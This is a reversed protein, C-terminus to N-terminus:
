KLRKVTIEHHMGDVRMKYVSGSKYVLVKPRYAYHYEYDFSVQQWVQGNELKFVTDGDWGEFDGDIGTEIVAPESVRNPIEPVKDKDLVARAVRLTYRNLWGDLQKMEEPTLKSLGASRFEEVTMVETIKVTQSQWALLSTKAVAVLTTATVLATTIVLKTRMDRGQIIVVTFLRGALSLARM